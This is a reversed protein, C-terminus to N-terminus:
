EKADLDIEIILNEGNLKICFYLISSPSKSSRDILTEKLKNELEPHNISVYRVDVKEHNTETQSMDIVTVGFGHQKRETISLQILENRNNEFFKLNVDDLGLTKKNESTM